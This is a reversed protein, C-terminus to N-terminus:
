NQITTLTGDVFYLYSRGGYVWQERITSATTTTNIREPKGWSSALVDDKSMGISVGESKKRAKEAKVSLAIKETRKREVTKVLDLYNRDKSVGDCLALRAAAMNADGADLIKRADTLLAGLGVTCSERIEALRKERAAAKEAGTQVVPVLKSAPEQQATSKYDVTSKNSNIISGGVVFVVLAAIFWNSASTKKPRIAGCSPCAAANTSMQSGCEKCKTLAM